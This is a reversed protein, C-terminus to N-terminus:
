MARTIASGNGVHFTDPAANVGNAQISKNPLETRIRHSRLAVLRWRSALADQRSESGAPRVDHDSSARRTQESPLHKVFALLAKGPGHVETAIRLAPM